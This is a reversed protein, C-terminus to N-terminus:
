LSAKRQNERKRSLRYDITDGNTDIGRYPYAWEGNVKIYTEEMQWSDNTKRLHKKIKVNLIPSYEIIWRHTTSFNFNIERKEMIEQMNRLSLSYKLYWRTCLFVIEPDTQKWKFQNEQM